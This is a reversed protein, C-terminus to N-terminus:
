DDIKGTRYDGSQDYKGVIKKVYRNIQDPEGDQHEQREMSADPLPQSGDCDEIGQGDALVKKNHIHEPYDTVPDSPGRGKINGTHDGIGEQVKQDPVTDVSYECPVEVLGPFEKVVPDPDQQVGDAQRRQYTNGGTNIKGRRLCILHPGGSECAEYGIQSAYGQRLIKEGANLLIHFASVQYQLLTVIFFQFLVLCLDSPEAM